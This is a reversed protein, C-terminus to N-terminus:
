TGRDIPYLRQDLMLLTPKKLAKAMQVQEHCTGHDRLDLLSHAIGLVFFFESEAIKEFTTGSNAQM